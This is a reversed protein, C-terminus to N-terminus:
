WTGKVALGRGGNQMAVPVVTVDDDHVVTRPNMIGYIVTALGVAQFVGDAGILIKTTTTGDCEQNSIPCEQEDQRQALDLWPGLLPVYLRQDAENDSMSAAAVALGYSLGFTVVGTAIVPTNITTTVSDDDPHDASAVGSGVCLAGALGAAALIRKLNKM